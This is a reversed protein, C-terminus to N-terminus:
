GAVRVRFWGLAALALGYVGVGCLLTLTFGLNMSLVAAFIAGFVSTASNIGWSWPVGAPTPHFVKMGLPLPMGLLLGLPALLLVALVCRLALPVTLWGALLPPLVAVYVLSLLVLAVLVRSLVTKEAGARCRAALLSGLGAFVLLAFLVVALAYIPPGLFVTFRRLLGIEILMFGLGLCAFYLLRAGTGAGRLERGRLLALPLLLCVLVLVTVVVLLNRLTLIARDEFPSQEPFSLLRVFDAPKLMYYFFPRDDSVPRIDFPFDRYFAASGQAAILQHYHSDGERADPMFVVDYERARVEARLQALEETTFPTRKLMFNALGRERIVALHAAPDAVGQEKLLHLGLSVLRLTEREFIFRSISLIGEDSLSDWYDRFAEITYLNNEALTFAGAAPAMRGFVASAQIVDYTQGARRVFSRGEDVVLRVRPDRYLEGSFAAFRENVARAILSNLEVATVERADMALAALVDKGGGPGIALARAEPRLLYALSIVNARFYERFRADDRRFLNTYGSDDIVMGLQEPIPGRYSRSLGWAREQEQGHSPYVAVRSYSNWASWVLNPEYRGRAFRIEAFGTLLNGAGVGALLALVLWLGLRRARPAGIPLFLAAAVLGVAAIVLLATIGGVLNLVGIIALCGAGAGLLDWCYLRNIDRLHRTLLLTVALGSCYFPFATVLYLAGLAPLMGAPVAAGGPGQQFPQYHPQHFFSLVTFGFQPHLRFLVFIGFFLAVGLCFLLAWRAALSEARELPFWRPALALTLAAAGLGFLALSIAMSAFHYWMLVSFIRTLVLEYMLTAMCLLFMGWCTRRDLTPLNNM